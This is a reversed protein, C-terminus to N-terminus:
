KAGPNLFSWDYWKLLYVNLKKPWFCLACVTWIKKIIKGSCSINENNTYIRRASDMVMDNGSSAPSFIVCLRANSLTQRTIHRGTNRKPGNAHNVKMMLM